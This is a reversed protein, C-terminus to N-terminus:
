INNRLNLLNNIVCELPHVTDFLIFIKQSPKVPNMIYPRLIASGSIPMVSKRNVVNNDSIISVIRFGANTVNTMVQLM